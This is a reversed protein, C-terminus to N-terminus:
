EQNIQFLCVFFGCFFLYFSRPSRFSGPRPGPGSAITPGVQGGFTEGLRLWEKVTITKFIKEVYLYPHKQEGSGGFVRMLESPCLLLPPTCYPCASNPVPRSLLVVCKCM